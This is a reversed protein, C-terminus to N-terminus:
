VNSTNNCVCTLNVKVTPRAGTGDGGNCGINPGTAFSGDGNFVYESIGVFGTFTGGCIGSMNVKCQQFPPDMGNVAINFDGNRGCYIGGAGGSGNVTLTFNLVTNSLPGFSTSNCSFCSGSNFGGWAHINACKVSSTRNVETTQNGTCSAAAAYDPAVSFGVVRPAVFAAGAVAGGLAAKMVTRRDVQQGDVPTEATPDGLM